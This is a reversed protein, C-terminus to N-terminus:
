GMWRLTYNRLAKLTKEPLIDKYIDAFSRVQEEQIKTSYNIADNLNKFKQESIKGNVARKVTYTNYSKIVGDFPNTESFPKVSNKIKKNIEMPLFLCTDESYIKNGPILLDKDLHWGEKYGIQNNCWEAFFQFNKFNDSLSCGVYGPHNNQESNSSCRNSMNNHLRAANTFMQEGWPLKFSRAWNGDLYKFDDVIM